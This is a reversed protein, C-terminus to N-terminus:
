TSCPVVMLFRSFEIYAIQKLKALSRLFGVLNILGSLVALYNVRRRMQLLSFLKQTREAALSRRYLLHLGVWARIYLNFILNQQSVEVGLKKGDWWVLYDWNLVDARILFVFVAYIKFRLFTYFKASSLIWVIKDMNRTDSVHNLKVM